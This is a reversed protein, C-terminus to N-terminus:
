FSSWLKRITNWIKSNRLLLLDYEKRWKSLLYNYLCQIQSYFIGDCLVNWAVAIGGGVIFVVRVVLGNLPKVYTYSKITFALADTHIIITFIM